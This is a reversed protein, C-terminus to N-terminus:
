SSEFFLTKRKGYKKRFLYLSKKIKGYANIKNLLNM